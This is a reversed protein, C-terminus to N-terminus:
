SGVKQNIKLWGALDTVQTISKVPNFQNKKIKYFYLILKGDM